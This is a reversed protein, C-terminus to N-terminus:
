ASIKVVKLVVLKTIKQGLTPQSNYFPILSLFDYTVLNIKACWAIQDSKKGRYVLKKETDQM